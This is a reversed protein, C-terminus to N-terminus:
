NPKMRTLNYAIAAMLWETTVAALSRRRFKRMSRQEKLIGFVPEAVAPRWQYM